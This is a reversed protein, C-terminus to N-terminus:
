AKVNRVLVSEIQTGNTLYYNKKEHSYEISTRIWNGNCFVELVDGSTLEYEGNISYRGTITKKLMGQYQM